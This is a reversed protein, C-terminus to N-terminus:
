NQLRKYIEIDTLHVFENLSEFGYLENNQLLQDWIDSISFVSEVFDKFIKKNLIQCGTYIFDNSKDKSLLNDKLNFDGLFRKDFSKNKNVVLLINKPKYKNYFDSMANVTKVDKNSWITDPNFVLFNQESINKIINSIGGGTNLIIEEHIIQIDLQYNKKNIFDKIQDGLYHTNLKIKKIGLNEVLKITNDLLNINKINILPKPIKDTIPKVRKGYGACLIIATEINM